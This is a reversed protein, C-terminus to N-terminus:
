SGGRFRRHRAADPQLPSVLAAETTQGFALSSLLNLLIFLAVVRRPM